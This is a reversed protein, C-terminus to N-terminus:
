NTEPTPTGGDLHAKLSGEFYRGWGAVCVRHCELAPSLGQHTLSVRCGTAAPTVGWLLKTGRWEGYDGVDEIIMHADTCTWSFQDGSAPRDFAFTVHSNGFQITAQQDTKDVRQSWWIHMEDVIAQVAKVTSATTEITATYDM